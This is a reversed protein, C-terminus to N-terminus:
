WIRRGSTTPTTWPSAPEAATARSPRAPTGPGGGGEGGEGEKPGAGDRAQQDDGDGDGHGEGERCPAEDKEMTRQGERRSHQAHAEAQEEDVLDPEDAPEEGALIAPRGLLPPPSGRGRYDTRVELYFNGPRES